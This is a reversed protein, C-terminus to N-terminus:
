FSMKQKLQGRLSPVAALYFGTTPESYEGGPAWIKPAELFHLQPTPQSDIFHLSQGYKEGYIVHSAQSNNLWVIFQLGSPCQAMQHLMSQIPLFNFHDNLPDVLYGKEILYSEVGKIQHGLAEESLRNVMGETNDMGYYMFATCDEKQADNREIDETVKTSTKGQGLLTAVACQSCNSTSYNKFKRMGIMQDKATNIQEPRTKALKELRKQGEDFASAKPLGPFQAAEQEFFASLHQRAKLEEVLTTHEAKIFKQLFAPPETGEAKIYHCYPANHDFGKPIPLSRLM